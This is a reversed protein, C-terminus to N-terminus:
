KTVFFTIQGIAPAEQSENRITIMIQNGLRSQLKRVSVRANGQDMTRSHVLKYDTPLENPFSKHTTYVQGPELHFEIFDIVEHRHDQWLTELQRKQENLDRRIDFFYWLGGAMIIPFLLTQMGWWVWDWILKRFQEAQLEKEFDGLPAYEKRVPFFSRGEDRELMWWDLGFHPRERHFKDIIDQSKLANIENNATNKSIKHFRLISIADDLNLQKHYPTLNTVGIQMVGMWSPDIMTSVHSLGIDTNRVNAYLSAGINNNVEIYENTGIILFENPRFVLRGLDYVKLINSSKREFTYKSRESFDSKPVKVYPGIHITLSDPQLSKIFFDRALRDYEDDNEDEVPKLFRKEPLRVIEGDANKIAYYAIKIDGTQISEIIEIASLFSM